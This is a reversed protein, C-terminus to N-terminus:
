HGLTLYDVDWWPDASSLGHNGPEAAALWTIHGDVWLVNLGGSHRYTYSGLYFYSGPDASNDSNDAVFFTEVPKAVQQLRTPYIPTVFLDNWMRGFGMYNLGYSSNDFQYIEHSLGAKRVLDSPCKMLKRNTMLGTYYLYGLWARANLDPAPPATTWPFAGMVCDANDQAYLALVINLQSLNSICAVSNAKERAGKLAPLLLAVLLAIIAVVVLLEVLTFGRV